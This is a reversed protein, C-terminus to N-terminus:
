WNITPPVYYYRMWFVIKSVSDSYDDNYEISFKWWKPLFMPRQNLNIIWIEPVYVWHTNVVDLTEMNPWEISSMYDALWNPPNNAVARSEFLYVDQTSFISFALDNFEWIATIATTDDPATFAFGNNYYQIWYSSDPWYVTVNTDIHTIVLAYYNNPNLLTNSPIELAVWCVFDHLHYLRKGWLLQLEFQSVPTASSIDWIQTYQTWNDISNVWSEPITSGMDWLQIGISGPAPVTALNDIYAIWWIKKNDVRFWIKVIDTPDTDLTNWTDEIMSQELVDFHTWNNAQNIALNSYKSNGSSDEIYVSVTADWFEVTQYFDFSGTYWTYDVATFTKIFADWNNTLPIGMSQTGWQIITTEIFNLAWSPVWVAQLALDNAYAEFDEIISAEASELTLYISNINDQSAKFIQWVKNTSTVISQAERSSEAHENVIQPRLRLHNLQWKAINFAVENATQKSYTIPVLGNTLSVWDIVEQQKDKTSPNIIIDDTDRISTVNKGNIYEM